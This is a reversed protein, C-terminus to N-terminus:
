RNRANQYERDPVSCVTEGVHAIDLNSYLQSKQQKKQDLLRYLVNNGDKSNDANTQM